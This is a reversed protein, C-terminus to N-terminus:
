LYESLYLLLSKLATEGLELQKNKKNLLTISCNQFKDEPTSQYDTLFQVGVV